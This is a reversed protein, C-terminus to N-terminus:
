GQKHHKKIFTLQVTGKANVTASMELNHEKCTDKFIETMTDELSQSTPYKEEWQISKEIFKDKEIFMIMKDIDTTSMLEVNEEIAFETPLPALIKIETHMERNM